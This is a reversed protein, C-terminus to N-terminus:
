LGCKIALLKYTLWAGAFFWLMAAGFIVLLFAAPSWRAPEAHERQWKGLADRLLLRTEAESRDAFFDSKM